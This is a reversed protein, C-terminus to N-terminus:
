VIINLIIIILSFCIILYFGVLNVLDNFIFNFVNGHVNIITEKRNEKKKKKLM